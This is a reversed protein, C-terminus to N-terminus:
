ETTLYQFKYDLVQMCFSLLIRRFSVSDLWKNENHRSLLIDITKRFINFNLLNKMRLILEAVERLFFFALNNNSYFRLFSGCFSSFITSKSICSRGTVYRSVAFKFLSSKSFTKFFATGKVITLELDLFVASSGLTETELELGTDKYISRWASVFNTSESIVDDVFRCTGAYRQRETSSLGSLFRSELNCLVCDIISNASSLGMPIGIRQLLTLGSVNVYNCCLWSKMVQFLDSYRLIALIGDRKSPLAKAVRMGSKYFLFFDHQHHKLAFHIQENLIRILTGRKLCMCVSSSDGKYFSRYEGQMIKKKAGLSDRVRFGQPVQLLVYDLVHKLTDSLVSIPTKNTASCIPRFAIIPAKHM